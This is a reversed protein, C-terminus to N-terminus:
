PGPFVSMASVSVVFLPMRGEDFVEVRLEEGEWIEQSNDRLLEGTFKLAVVRAADVDALDIGVADTERTGDSLDFFFRPM